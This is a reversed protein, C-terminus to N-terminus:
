ANILTPFPSQDGLYYGIDAKREDWGPGYINYIPPIEGPTGDELTTTIGTSLNMPGARWSEGTYIDLLIEVKQEETTPDIVPSGEADFVPETRVIEPPVVSLACPALAIFKGISNTWEGLASSEGTTPDLDGIPDTNSLGYFLQM